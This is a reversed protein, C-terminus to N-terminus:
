LKGIEEMIALQQAFKEANTITATSSSPHYTSSSPQDTTAIQTEPITDESVDVRDLKARKFSTYDFIEGYISKRESDM